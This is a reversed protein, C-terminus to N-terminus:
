AFVKTLETCVEYTERKNPLVARHNRKGGKSTVTLGKGDVASTQHGSRGLVVCQICGAWAAGLETLKLWNQPFFALNMLKWSDGTVRVPGDVGDIVIALSDPVGQITCTRRKM